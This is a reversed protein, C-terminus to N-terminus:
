GTGRVELDQGAVLEDRRGHESQDVVGVELNVAEQQGAVDRHEGAPLGEAEQGVLVADGARHDAERGGVDQAAHELQMSCFAPPRLAM